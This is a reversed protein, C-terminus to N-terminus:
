VQLIQAVRRVRLGQDRDVDGVRKIRHPLDGEVLRIGLEVRSQLAPELIEHIAEFLFRARDEPRAASSDPLFETPCGDPGFIDAVALDAIVEVALVRQNGAHELVLVPVRRVLVSWCASNVLKKPSKGSSNREPLM